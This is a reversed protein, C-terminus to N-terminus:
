FSAIPKSPACVQKLGRDLVSFLDLASFDMVSDQIVVEVLGTHLVSLFHNMESKKIAAREKMLEQFHEVSLFDYDSYVFGSQELRTDLFSQISENLASEEAAMISDWVHEADLACESFLDGLVMRKIYSQTYPYTNNQM